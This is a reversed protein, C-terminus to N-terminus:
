ADMGAQMASAFQTHVQAPTRQLTSSPREGFLRRYEVAARGLEKFGWRTMAETVSMTPQDNSLLLRHVEHLRANRMYQNPTIGVIDKFSQQLVRPSVGAAAALATSGLDFHGRECAAIAALTHEWHARRRSTGDGVPEGKLLQAVVEYIEFELTDLLPHDSPLYNSNIGCNLVLSVMRTLREFHLDSCHLFRASAQQQLNEFGARGGLSAVPILVTWHLSGAPTVFTVDAGDICTGLHHSDLQTDCFNVPARNLVGGVIFYGPPSSGRTLLRQNWHELTVLMNKVPAFRECARLEGPTLQQMEITWPNVTQQLLDLEDLEVVVDLGEVGQNDQKVAGADEM